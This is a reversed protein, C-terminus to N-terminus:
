KSQEGKEERKLANLEKDFRALVRVLIMLILAVVSPISLLYMNRQHKFMGIAVRSAHHPRDGDAIKQRREADRHQEQFEQLCLLGCFGIFVWLFFQTRLAFQLIKRHASEWLPLVMVFIAFVLVASFIFLLIFIVGYEPDM